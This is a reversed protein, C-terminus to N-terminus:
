VTGGAFKAVRVGVAVCKPFAVFVGAVVAFDAVGFAVVARVAHIAKNELQTVGAVLVTVAVLVPRAVHHRVEIEVTVPIAAQASTGGILGVTTGTPKRAAVSGPKAVVIADCVAGVELFVTVELPFWM